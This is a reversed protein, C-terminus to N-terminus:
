RDRRFCLDNFTNECLRSGIEGIKLIGGCTDEVAGAKGPLVTPSRRLVYEPFEGMWPSVSGADGIGNEVGPVHQDGQEIRPVCSRIGKELFLDPLM